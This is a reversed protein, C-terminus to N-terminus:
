HGDPCVRKWCKEVKDLSTSFFSSPSSCKVLELLKEPPVNPCRFCRMESSPYYYGDRHRYLSTQEHALHASTCPTKMERIKGLMEKYTEPFNSDFYCSQYSPRECGVRLSDHM